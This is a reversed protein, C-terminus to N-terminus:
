GRSGSCADRTAVDIPQGGSAGLGNGTLFFLVLGMMGGFYPHRLNKLNPFLNERMSTM